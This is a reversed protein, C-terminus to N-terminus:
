NQSVGGSEYLVQLSLTGLGPDVLSKGLLFIVKLVPELECVATTRDNKFGLREVLLQLVTAAAPRHGKRLNWLLALFTEAAPYTANTNTSRRRMLLREWVPRADLAGLSTALCSALTVVSGEGCSALSLRKQSNNVEAMACHVHSVGFSLFWYVNKFSYVTALM